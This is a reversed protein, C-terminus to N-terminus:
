TFSNILNFINRTFQIANGTSSSENVHHELMPVIISVFPLNTTTVNGAVAALKRQLDLWEVKAHM